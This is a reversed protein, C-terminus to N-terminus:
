PPPPLDLQAYQVRKRWKKFNSLSAGTARYAEEESMGPRGMQILVAHLAKISGSETRSAGLALALARVIQHIEVETRARQSLQLLALYLATQRPTMAVPPSHGQWPAPPVNGFLPQAAPPHQAAPPPMGFPAVPAVTVGAVPAVAVAVPVPLYSSVAQPNPGNPQLHGSHPGQQAGPGIAAAGVPTLRNQLEVTALEDSLLSSLFAEMAAPGTVSSSAPGTETALATGSSPVRVAGETPLQEESPGPEDPSGSSPPGPPMSLPGLDSPASGGAESPSTGGTMLGTAKATSADHPKSKAGAQLGRRLAVRNSDDHPRLQM